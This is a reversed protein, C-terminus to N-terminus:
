ATAEETTLDLGKCLKTALLRAEERCLPSDSVLYGGQAAKYNQAFKDFLKEAYKQRNPGMWFHRLKGVEGLFAAKAPSPDIPHHATWWREFFYVLINIIASVILTLM